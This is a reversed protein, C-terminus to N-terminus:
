KKPEALVFLFSFPDNMKVAVKLNEVVVEIFEMIFEQTPIYVDVKNTALSLSIKYFTHKSLFYLKTKWINTKWDDLIVDSNSNVDYFKKWIKLIKSHCTAHWM